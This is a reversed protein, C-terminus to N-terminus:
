RTRTETLGVLPQVVWHALLFSVLAGILPVIAMIGVVPLLTRHIEKERNDGWFGVYATGLQGELIPVGTAYM